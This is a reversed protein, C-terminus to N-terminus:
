KSTQLLHCCIKLAPIIVIYLITATAEMGAGTTELQITDQPSTQPDNVAIQLKVGQSQLKMLQDFVQEGQLLCSHACIGDSVLTFLTLKCLLGCLTALHLGPTLGPSGCPTGIKIECRSILLQSM